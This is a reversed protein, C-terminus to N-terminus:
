LIKGTFEFDCLSCVFGAVFDRLDFGGASLKGVLDFEVNCFHPITAGVM